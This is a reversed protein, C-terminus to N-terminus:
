GGGRKVLGLTEMMRTGGPGLLKLREIAMKQDVAGMAIMSEKSQALVLVAREMFGLCDLTALVDEGDFELKGLQLKDKRLDLVADLLRGTAGKMLQLDLHKSLAAEGTVDVKGKEDSYEITVFSDNGSRSFVLDVGSGTEHNVFTAELHNKSAKARALAYDDLKEFDPVPEKRLWTKGLRVPLRVGKRVGAFTFEGRFHPSAATNLLFEYEIEGPCKYEAKASYSSDSLELSVEEDTVPLPTAALYSELSRKAKLEESRSESQMDNLTSELKERVQDMTQNIALSAFENIKRSLGESDEAEINLDEFAKSIRRALSELQDVQEEARARAENQEKISRGWNQSYRVADALETFLLDAGKSAESLRPSPM